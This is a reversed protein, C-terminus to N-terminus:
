SKGFLKKWNEKSILPTVSLNNIRTYNDWIKLNIFNGSKSATIKYQPTEWYKDIFMDANDFIKLGLNFFDLMSSETENFSLCKMGKESDSNIKNFFCLDYKGEKKTLSFPAKNEEDYFQGIKGESHKTVEKFQSFCITPIILLLFSIKKM